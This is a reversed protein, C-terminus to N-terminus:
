TGSVQCEVHECKSLIFAECTELNRWVLYEVVFLEFMEHKETKQLEAESFSSKQQKCDHRWLHWSVWLTRRRVNKVLSSRTAKSSPQTAQLGICSQSQSTKFAMKAVFDFNKEWLYTTCDLITVDNLSADIFRFLQAIKCIYFDYKLTNQEVVVDKVM